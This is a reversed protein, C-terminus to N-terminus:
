KCSNRYVREQWLFGRHIDFNFKIICPSQKLQIKSSVNFVFVLESKDATYLCGNELVFNPSYNEVERCDYLDAINKIEELTSPFTISQPPCTYSTLNISRVGEEVEYHYCGYSRIGILEFGDASYESLRSLSIWTGNETETIRSFYEPTSNKM